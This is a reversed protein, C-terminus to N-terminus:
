SGFAVLEGKLFNVIIKKEFTSQMKEWAASGDTNHKMHWILEEALLNMSTM